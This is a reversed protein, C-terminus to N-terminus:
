KGQSDCCSNEPEWAESCGCRHFPSDECDFDCDCYDLDPDMGPCIVVGAEVTAVEDGGAPTGANMGSSSSGPASAPPAASPVPATQVPSNWGQMNGDAIAYDNEFSPMGAVKYQVYVVAEMYYGVPNGLFTSGDEVVTPPTSTEDLTSPVLSVTGSAGKLEGSGGVITLISPGSPQTEGEATISAVVELGDFFEYTFFCYGTQDSYIAQCTGQVFGLLSAVDIGTPEQLPLDSYVWLNGTSTPDPNEPTAYIPENTSFRNDQFAALFIV